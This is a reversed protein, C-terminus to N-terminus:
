NVLECAEPGAAPFIDTGNVFVHDGLGAGCLITDAFADNARIEDSAGGGQLDDVGANGTLKNPGDSGVLTDPGAGGKLNEVNGSVTDRPAPHVTSTAM